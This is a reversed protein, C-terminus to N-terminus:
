IDSLIHQFKKVSIDLTFNNMVHNHANKIITETEQPNDIYYQIANNLETANSMTTLLGTKKHQIIETAGGGNTAIVPKGALIAEVIVRGFPEPTISCHAIVDCAAMYIEPNDVHGTFIVRDELGNDKIYQHLSEKYPIENFFADGIIIVNFNHELTAAELLVHQGKWSSIRGVIGVAKNGNHTFKQRLQQITDYTNTISAIIKKDNIGSYIVDSKKIGGNNLWLKLSDQSNLIVCDAFFYSFYKIIKIAVPSFYSTDLRDNMFWIIPKKFFIKGLSAMIFAKQSMCVIVGSNTSKCKQIIQFIAKITYPILGLVSLIGSSRKFEHLQKPIEILTNKITHNDLIKKLTGAQMYAVELPNELTSCFDIMAYEAGGPDGVHTLFLIKKLNPMFYCFYYHIFIFFDYDIYFLNRSLNLM